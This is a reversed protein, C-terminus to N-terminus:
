NDNPGSSVVNDLARFNGDGPVKPCAPDQAVSIKKGDINRADGSAGHVM